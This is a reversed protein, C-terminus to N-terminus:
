SLCYVLLINLIEEDGSVMRLKVSNLLTLTDNMSKRVQEPDREPVDEKSFDYQLPVHTCVHRPTPSPPLPRPPLPLSLSLSLSLSPSYVLGFEVFVGMLIVFVVTAHWLTGHYRLM